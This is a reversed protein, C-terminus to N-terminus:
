KLWDTNTTSYSVVDYSLDNDKAYQEAYSGATVILAPASHDSSDATSSRGGIDLFAGYGISTVSSPIAVNSLNSNSAFAFEGISILHDPLVVSSLNCTNFAGTGITQLSDSLTINTLTSWVFAHNGISVVTNPLTITKVQAHNFAYSDIYKTSDPVIYSEDEKSMPYWVLRNDAKTFLVGDKM